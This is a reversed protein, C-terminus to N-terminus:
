KGQMLDYLEKKNAKPSYEIGLADLEQKIQAVTTSDYAEDGTKEDVVPVEAQETKEDTSPVEPQFKSAEVWNGSLVSNTEIVSNTKKNIYKTM